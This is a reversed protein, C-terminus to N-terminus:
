SRSFGLTAPSRKLMANGSVNHEAANRPRRRTRPATVFLSLFLRLLSYTRDNITM